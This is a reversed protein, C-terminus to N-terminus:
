ISENMEERVGLEPFPLIVSSSVNSLHAGMRKFYYTILTYLIADSPSIKKDKRLRKLIANCEKAVEVRWAIVKRARRKDMKKFATRTDDFMILLKDYLKGLTKMYADEKPKEPYHKGLEAVGKSYDGLRELNVIVSILVLSANINPASNFALYEVVKRRTGIAYNNVIEDMVTVQDAMKLDNEVISKLALKFMNKNQELMADMNDFGERLLSDKTWIDYIERFVM